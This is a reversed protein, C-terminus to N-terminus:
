RAAEGGGALAAALDARPRVWEAGSQAGGQPM